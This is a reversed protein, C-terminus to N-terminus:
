ASLELGPSPAARTSPVGSITPAETVTAGSAPTAGLALCALIIAAVGLGPRAPKLVTLVAM